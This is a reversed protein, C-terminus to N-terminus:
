RRRTGRDGPLLATRGTRVVGARGAAAAHASARGHLAAGGERDADRGRRGGARARLRLVSQEGRDPRPGDSGVGAHRRHGRRGSEVRHQPIRGGADHAAATRWRGGVGAVRAGARRGGLEHLRDLARGAVVGAGDRVARVLGAHAAAADWGAPGHDLGTGGGPLRAPERGALLRDLAPVEGQVDRGAGDAPPGGDGLDDAARPRHLPDDHRRRRSGGPPDERGGLGRALALGFGLRVGPPGPVGEDGGGHGGRHPGHPRARRGDGPRAALARNPARLPTRRPLDDWGPHPARLRALARGSVAGARDGRREVDARAAGHHRFHDRRGAGDRPRPAPDAQAGADHGAPRVGAGAAGGPLPLLAVSWGALVVAVASRFLGARRTARGRRRGELVDLHGAGSRRRGAADFGAAGRHLPRGSELRTGVRAAGPGRVRAAPELRGGGDAVPQEARRSRLHLRDDVRRAFAPSPLQGGRGHEAHPGGGRGGGGSAPLHTRPPRVRAVRGGARPRDVDM